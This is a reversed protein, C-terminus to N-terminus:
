HACTKILWYGAMSLAIGAVMSVLVYVVAQTHQQMRFMIMTEMSFASFTTFGGLVGTTLFWRTQESVISKEVLGYVIGIALCGALNVCLTGYPFGQHDKHQFVTSIFYRLTGGIASGFFVLVWTPM